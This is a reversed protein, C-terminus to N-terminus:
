HAAHCKEEQGLYAAIVEPHSRVQKEDGEAIKRGFNMVSIRDSVTMVLNMDHEVLLITVGMGQIQGLLLRLRETEAPNL